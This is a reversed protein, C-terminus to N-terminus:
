SRLARLPDLRVARRAAAGSAALAVLALLVAVAAYTVPDRAGVGFLLHSLLRMLAAAAVLGIAIGIAPMRLGHALVVGLVDRQTTFYAVDEFARTRERWDGITRYATAESALGRRADNTWILALRGADCYPLPRLVVADIVSFM